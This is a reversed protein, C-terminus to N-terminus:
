ALRRYKNIIHKLDVIIDHDLEKDEDLLHISKITNLNFKSLYNGEMLSIQNRQSDNSDRMRELLKFDTQHRKHGQYERRV